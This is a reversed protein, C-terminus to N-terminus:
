KKSLAIKELGGLNVIANERPNEAIDMKEQVITPVYKKNKKNSKKKM